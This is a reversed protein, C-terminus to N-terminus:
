DAAALARDPRGADVGLARLASRQDTLVTLTAGAARGAAACADLAVHATIDCSGDPVPDVQRGDRYAALSGARPRAARDHAYDVAVAVGRDLEAIVGAWAADRPRGVEARAGDAVPWWEALWRADDADPPPGLAEHGDEDLVVLRAGDSTGAVVDVPVTDLWENAVLLGTLGRRLTADWSIPAPLDVPREVIDVATLRWRPPPDLALVATLLEGRGAGLDVLDFPDPHGLAADVEAALRHVTEGVGSVPPGPAASTRFHGAPGRSFTAGTTRRYFGGPGYLAASMAARWGIPGQPM